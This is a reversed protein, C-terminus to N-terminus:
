GNITWSKGERESRERVGILLYDSTIKNCKRASCDPCKDFKKLGSKTSPNRSSIVLATTVAM